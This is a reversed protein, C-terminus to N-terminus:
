CTNASAFARSPDRWAKVYVLGPLYAAPLYAVHLTIEIMPQM